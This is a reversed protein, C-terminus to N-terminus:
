KDNEPYLKCERFSIYKKDGIIIHDLVKINILNGAKCLSNTVEIDIESPVPNGSPHNHILVIYVANYELANIFIERASVLTQTETGSSIIKDCIIRRSADLYLVCFFEKDLHRFSEMYYDAIEKPTSFSIGNSYHTNSIRESIEAICKLCIAKVEGIGNIQKLEALSKKYLSLLSYSGDPKLLVERAIDISTKDKLGTKIFIALLEADTLAKPGYKLFKEYPREDSPLEKIKYHMKRRDAGFTHHSFFIFLARLYYNVYKPM